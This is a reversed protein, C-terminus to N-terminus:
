DNEMQGITENEYWARAEKDFVQLLQKITVGLFYGM